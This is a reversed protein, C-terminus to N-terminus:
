LGTVAFKSACYATRYPLGMEGSLSSVVVILGNSKMLHPLAAHTCHLYGYFNVQLCFSRIFSRFAALKFHNSVDMLSKFLKTDKM